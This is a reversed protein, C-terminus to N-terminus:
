SLNPHAQTFNPCFITSSSDQAWRSVINKKNTMKKPNKEPYNARINPCFNTQEKVWPIGTKTRRWNKTEDIIYTISLYYAIKRLRSWHKKIKQRNKAL